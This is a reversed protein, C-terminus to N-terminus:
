FDTLHQTPLLFSLLCKHPFSSFVLLKCLIYGFDLTYIFGHRSNERLHESPLMLLQAKYRVTGAYIM